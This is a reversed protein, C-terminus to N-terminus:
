KYDNDTATDKLGMRENNCVPVLVLERQNEYIPKPM